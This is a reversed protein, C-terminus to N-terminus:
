GPPVAETRTSPGKRVEVIRVRKPGRPTEIEAREGVARGHLAREVPSGIRAPRVGGVPSGEGGILYWIRGQDAEVLVMDGRRILAEEGGGASWAIWSPSAPGPGRVESPTPTLLGKTDIHCDALADVGIDHAAVFPSLEVRGDALTRSGPRATAVESRWPNFWRIPVGGIAADLQPRTLRIAGTASRVVHLAGAAFLWVPAMKAALYERHRRRLERATIEESILLFVVPCALGRVVLDAVHNPMLRQDAECRFGAGLGEAWHRLSERSLGLWAARGYHDRGPDYRHRFHARVLSGEGGVVTEFEPCPCDPLPCRFRGAACDRSFQVVDRIPLDAQLRVLQSGAGAARQDIAWM